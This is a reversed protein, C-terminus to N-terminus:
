NLSVSRMLTVSNLAVASDSTDETALAPPLPQVTVTAENSTATDFANTVACRFKAVNDTLTTAAITYTTPTAGSINM